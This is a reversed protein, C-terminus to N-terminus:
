ALTGRYPSFEGYYTRNAERYVASAQEKDGFAGLFKCKGDVKIQAYWLQRGTHWVVGRFGSTNRGHERIRNKCNQVHTCPRLNEKRNDLNNGNRHDVVLGAPCNTILRALVISKQHKRDCRVEIIEACYRVRRKVKWRYQSVRPWDEDDIIVTEGNTSLFNM